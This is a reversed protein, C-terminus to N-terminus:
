RWWDRLERNMKEDWEEMEWQRAAERKQKRRVFFAIIALVAMIIPIIGMAIRTLKLGHYHKSIAAAWDRDFQGGTRGTANLMAKDFSGTRALEALMVKLSSKGHKKVMYRIASASEAYALSTKEKPFKVALHSLPILLGGAAAEAVIADDSDSYQESQYKAIGENAWLPLSSIRLGLLRFIVAHTIEHALTENAPAFVGSTDVSIVENSGATGVTFMSKKLGGAEIFSHHTRYINLTFPRNKEPKYGLDHSIRMLAAEASESTMQPLYKDVPEFHVIFYETKLTGALLSKSGIAQSSFILIISISILATRIATLRIM